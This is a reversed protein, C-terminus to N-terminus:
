RGLAGELEQILMLIDEKPEKILKLAELAQLWMSLEMLCEAKKLILKVSQPTMLLGYSVLEMATVIHTQRMGECLRLLIEEKKHKKVYIMWVIFICPIKKEMILEGLEAYEAETSHESIQLLRVWVAFYKDKAAKRDEIGQFLQNRGLKVEIDGCRVLDELMESEPKIREWEELYSETRKQREAKVLELVQTMRTYFDHYKLVKAQGNKAIRQREEEHELYYDVYYRLEELNHYMVMDEGPIFLEELEKQYNTLLFGGAAMVDFVRQCVGTEICHLTINLNIKSQRYVHSVETEYKAGPCIVVKDSLGQVDQDFTYFKVKRDEALANLIAIRESNALIRSLVAAEYYFQESVYPFRDAVKQGDVSSFYVVCNDKMTGHLQTSHNWNLFSGAVSEEMARQVKFDARGILEELNQVRYLQGVFAVEAEYRGAFEEHQQLSQCVRDGFVALPFHYVKELGIQTLRKQQQKDFVFIYNNPYQAEKTYLEQQPADYVWSIYPVEMEMCAQSITPVFDYSIAYEPKEEKLLDKIKDCIEQEFNQARIGFDVSYVSYGLEALVVPIDRLQIEMTEFYLIM